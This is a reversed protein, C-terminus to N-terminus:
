AKKIDPFLASPKALKRYAIYPNRSMSPALNPNHAKPTITKAPKKDIGKSFYSNLTFKILVPFFNSLSKGRKDSSPQYITEINDQSSHHSQYIYASRKPTRGGSLAEIYNQTM